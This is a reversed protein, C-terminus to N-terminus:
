TKHLVLNVLAKGRPVITRKVQQPQLGSTQLALEVLREESYEDGELHFFHKTKGNIQVVVKLLQQALLDPDHLPWHQHTSGLSHRMALGTEPAVVSLMLGLCEVGLQQVVGPGAEHLQNSLTMLFAIATNFSGNEM